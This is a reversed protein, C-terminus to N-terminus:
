KHFRNKLQKKENWVGLVSNSSNIKKYFRHRHVAGLLGNLFDHTDRVHMCNRSCRTKKKKREESKYIFTRCIHCVYHRILRSPYLYILMHTHNYINTNSPNDKERSRTYAHACSCAINFWSSELSTEWNFPFYALVLVPCFSVCM